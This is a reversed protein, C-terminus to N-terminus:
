CVHYRKYQTYTKNCNKPKNYPYIYLRSCLTHSYKSGRQEHETEQNDQRHDPDSSLLQKQRFM